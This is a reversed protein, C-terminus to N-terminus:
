KPVEFVQGPYILDPDRIRDRNAEFVRVYLIGDGYNLNAIGWLTNGPQVTVLATRFADDPAGEATLEALAAPEERKFPTEVRSVVDGAANVEDIRLTYVGSDVEPLPTRWRGDEGIPETKIPKNDLYVRVFGEGTGRGSLSVEGGPDYTIADLAIESLPDPSGGPQLVDVGEDTALLIAPAESEVPVEEGGALVPPESPAVAPEAGAPEAAAVETEEPAADEVAPATGAVTDSQDPLENAADAASAIETGGESPPQGETVTAEAVESPQDVGAFPAIIVTDASEALVEGDRSALRITRPDDSPDLTFLSTFAGSADATTTEVVTEGVLIEVTASPAARGAILANGEGDVRVVDFTPAIPAAAAEAVPDPDDEPVDAVDDAASPEAPEVPESVQPTSLAAPSTVELSRGFAAYLGLALLAAAAIGAAVRGGTGIDSWITM